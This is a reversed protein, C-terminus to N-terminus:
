PFTIIDRPETIGSKTPCTRAPSGIVTVSGDIVLNRIDSSSATWSTSCANALASGPSRNTRLAGALVTPSRAVATAM